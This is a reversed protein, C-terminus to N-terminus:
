GRDATRRAPSRPPTSCACEAKATCLVVETAKLIAQRQEPADPRGRGRHQRRVQTPKLPTTVLRGSREERGVFTVSFDGELAAIVGSATGVAATARLGLPFAVGFRATRRTGPADERYGRDDRRRHYIPRCPRRTAFDRVAFLAKSAPTSCTSLSLRTRVALSSARGRRTARHARSCRTRSRSGHDRGLSVHTYSATADHGADLAMNVDFPSMHALPTMMHLINKAMTGGLRDDSQSAGEERIQAGRHRANGNQDGGGTRMRRPRASRPIGGPRPRLCLRLRYIGLLEPWDGAGWSRGLRAAVRCSQRRQHFSRRGPRARLFRRPNGQIQRRRRRRVGRSGSRCRRGTQM